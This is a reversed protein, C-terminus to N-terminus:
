PVLFMGFHFNSFGSFSFFNFFCFMNNTCADYYHCLCTPAVCARVTYSCVWLHRESLLLVSHSFVCLLVLLSCAIGSIKSSLWLLLESELLYAASHILADSQAHHHSIKTAINPQIHIGFVSLIARASCTLSLWWSIMMIQKKM